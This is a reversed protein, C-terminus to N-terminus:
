AVQEIAANELDAPLPTQSPSATDGPLVYGGTYTVRALAQLSFALPQISFSESLSIICNRRVVYDIGTQEVWGASECVKTEFKSVSEVPYRPVSIELDGADFEFTTDVARALTRNTEQDFRASIAEIAFTLLDDYQIDIDPIALLTKITSLQCLM